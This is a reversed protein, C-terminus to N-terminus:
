LGVGINKKHKRSGLIESHEVEKSAWLVDGNFEVGRFVRLVDQSWIRTVLLESLVNSKQYQPNAVGEWHFRSIVHQQEKHGIRCSVIFIWCCCKNTTENQDPLGRKCPFYYSTGILKSIINNSCRFTIMGTSWSLMGDGVSTCYWDVIAGNIVASISFIFVKM